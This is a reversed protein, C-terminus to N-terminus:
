SRIGGEGTKPPNNPPVNRRANWKLRSVVHCSLAAFAGPRPHGRSTSSDSIPLPPTFPGAPWRRDDVLGAHSSSTATGQSARWSPTCRITPTNQDMFPLASAAVEQPQRVDLVFPAWGGARRELLEDVPDIADPVRTDGACFARYNILETIPPAHPDPQLALERFRM